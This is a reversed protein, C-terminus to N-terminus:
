GRIARLVDERRLAGDPESFGARLPTVSVYGQCLAEIDSEEGWGERRLTGTMRYVLGQDPAAPDPTVEYSEEWAAPSQTTFRAGKLQREPVPPINVNLITGAPVMGALLARAVRAGVAAAPGFDVPTRRADLSVAAAPIGLIAAELAAGVTGSYFLNVGVNLGRNVGALVAAPRRPALMSLVAIKVCDAPTGEVATAPNGDALQTPRARVPNWITLAHSVGSRETTPAVVVVQGLPRLAGALAALGVSEVGDDNTVLLLPPTAM